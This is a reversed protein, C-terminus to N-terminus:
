HVVFFVYALYLYFSVGYNSIAGYSGGGGGGAFYLGTGTINSLLGPGGGGLGQFTFGAGGAGGGGAGSGSNDGNGGDYGQRPPGVTATGGLQTGCGGQPYGAGGGSGQGAAKSTCPCTNGDGYSSAGGGGFATISITGGSVVSNFGQQGVCNNCIGGAGSGFGGNGVTITYTVGSVQKPYALGDLYGTLLGGAGPMESLLLFRHVFIILFPANFPSKINFMYKM